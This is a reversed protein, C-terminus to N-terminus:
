NKGGNYENMAAEIGNDLWCFVSEKAKEIAEAVPEKQQKGIKGLVYDISDGYEGRGIGIRLRAFEKTGLKQIIDNLGNHGGASGNRRLRIVGCDLDMDDSIVLLNKLDVKFFGAATAIATGSNNMYEWPKILILKKDKYVCRSFRGGFKKKRIDLGLTQTLADIVMFGVNHRTNVYELGPNGLGAVIYTESM